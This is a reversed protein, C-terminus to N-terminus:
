PRMDRRFSMYQRKHLYRWDSDRPDMYPHNYPYDVAFVMIHPKVFDMVSRDEGARRASSAEEDGRGFITKHILAVAIELAEAGRTSIRHALGSDCSASRGTPVRVFPGGLRLHSPWPSPK